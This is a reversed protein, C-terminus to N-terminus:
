RCSVFVSSLYKTSVPAATLTKGCREEAGEEPIGSVPASPRAMAEQPVTEFLREKPKRVKRHVKMKAATDFGIKPISKRAACRRM